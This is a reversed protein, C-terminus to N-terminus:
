RDGARAGDGRDGGATDGGAQKVLAILTDVIVLSRRAERDGRNALPDLLERAHALSVLAGKPDGLNARLPVGQVNGIKFYAAAM